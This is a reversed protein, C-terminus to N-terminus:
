PLTRVRRDDDHLEASQQQTKLCSRRAPVRISQQCDLSILSLRKIPSRQERPAM